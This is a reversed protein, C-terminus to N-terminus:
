QFYFQFPACWAAKNAIAMVFWLLYAAVLGTGIYYQLKDKNVSFLYYLLFSLVVFRLSTFYFFARALVMSNAAPAIVGWLMAIFFLNYYLYFHQEKFAEKLRKSYLIIILNVGLSFFYGATYGGGDEFFQDTQEDMSAYDVYNLLLALQGFNEFLYGIIPIALVVLALVLGLQVKVSAFWDRGLVFYLPIFLLASKHMLFALVSFLLYPLLRRQIIFRTSYLFFSFALAQRIINMSEFLYLSTFYFFVVWPLMFRYDYAWRYVFYIQLFATVMFLAPYDLSLLRLSAMLYYFGTEFHTTNRLEFIDLDNYADFYSGYDGGVNFRMGVVLTFLAVSAAGVVLYNRRQVEEEGGPEFKGKVALYLLISLMTFYVIYAQIM